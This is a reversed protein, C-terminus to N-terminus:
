AEVIMATTQTTIQRGFTDRRHLLNHEIANQALLKAGQGLLDYNAVRAPTHESQERWQRFMRSEFVELEFRWQGDFFRFRQSLLVTRASWKFVDEAVQAISAM